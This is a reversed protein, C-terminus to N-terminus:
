KELEEIASKPSPFHTGVRPDMINGGFGTDEDSLKDKIKSLRKRYEKGGIKNLSWIAIVKQFNENDENKIYNFLYEKTEKNDSNRLLQLASVNSHFNEFDIFKKLKDLEITLDLLYATELAAHQLFFLSIEDEGFGAPEKEINENIFGIIQEKNFSSTKYYNWIATYTKEYIEQPISAQHYSHRYTAYVNKDEDVVAYGSTPTPIEFNGDDRKSLLFYIIQDKEFDLHLGHGSSSTMQLQSFGNILIEGTLKQNGFYKIIKIKTGISDINSIVRALVFYESKKIIEKQWPENWTEAKANTNIGIILILILLIKNISM